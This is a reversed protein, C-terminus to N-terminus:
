TDNKRDLKSQEEHLDNMFDRVDIGNQNCKAVVYRDIKKELENAMKTFTDKFGDVMRKGDKIAEIVKM